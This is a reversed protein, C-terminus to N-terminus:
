FPHLPASIRRYPSKRDDNLPVVVIDKSIIPTKMLTTQMSDGLWHTTPPSRDPISNFVNLKLYGLSNDVVGGDGNHKPKLCM